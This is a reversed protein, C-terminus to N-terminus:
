YSPLRASALVERQIGILTEPSLSARVTRAVSDDASRGVFAARLNTDGVRDVVRPSLARDHIGAPMRAEAEEADWIVADAKRQSLLLPAEMYSAPVFTVSSGEFELESLRQFDLSDRDIVVRLGDSDEVCVGDDVFYVRHELVFSGAPLELLESERPGMLERAALASMVAVHCRGQRLEMLRHRGGRTFTLYAEVGAQRFLAKIGTALGETRRTLPLPLSLVLPVDEAAQWLQGISRRVLTSGLRGRRDVSVTGEAEFQALTGQTAGISAGHGAALDRVTPLRQGPDVGLLTRALRRRLEDARVRERFEGETFM